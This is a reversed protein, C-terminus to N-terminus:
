SLALFEGNVNLKELISQCKGLAEFQKGLVWIYGICWEDAYEINLEQEYKSQLIKEDVQIDEIVQLIIESWSEM